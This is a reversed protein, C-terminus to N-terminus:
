EDLGFRKRLTAQGNAIQVVFLPRRAHRDKGFTIPGTVSDFNELKQLTERVKTPQITGATRLVELILRTGDYALAANVDPPEHFQDRYKQVFEQNAPTEDSALFCTALVLGDSAARDALLAPLSGEDGGFLFTTESLTKQLEARIRPWDSASGAFLLAQPKATAVNALVSPLEDEKKSASV